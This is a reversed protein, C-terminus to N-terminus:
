ARSTPPPPAPNGQASDYRLGLSDGSHLTIDSIGVPPNTWAGGGTSVFLAWYPAGAPLCQSYHAPVNNVQCIAVGFSYQQTGLEIKSKALLKVASITPTDFGVCVSQANGETAEFVVRAHHAGSVNACSAEGGTASSTPSTSTCAALGVVASLLALVCAAQRTLRVSFSRFPGSSM